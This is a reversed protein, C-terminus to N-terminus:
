ELNKLSLPNIIRILLCRIKMSGALDGPDKNDIGDTAAVFVILLSCYNNLWFLWELAQVLNTHQFYLVLFWSFQM